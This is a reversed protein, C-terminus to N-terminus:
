FRSMAKIKSIKEADLGSLEDLQILGEKLLNAFVFLIGDLRMDFRGEIVHRQTSLYDHLQWLSEASSISDAQSRVTSILTAIARGYATNFAQEAIAQEAESWGNVVALAM